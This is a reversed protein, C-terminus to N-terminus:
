YGKQVLGCRIREEESWGAGEDDRQKEPHGVHEPFVDLNTVGAFAPTWHNKLERFIPSM